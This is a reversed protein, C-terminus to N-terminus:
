ERGKRGLAAIAPGLPRAAADYGAWGKARALLKPATRITYALPDLGVKM